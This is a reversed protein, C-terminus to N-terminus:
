PETPSFCFGHKETSLRERETSAPQTRIGVKEELFKVIDNIEDQCYWHGERYERWEVDISLAQLVDRALLGHRMHITEDETGHGLFVPTDLICAHDPLTAVSALKCLDQLARNKEPIQQDSSDESHLNENGVPYKSLIIFARLRHVFPLWGSMGIIAGFRPIPNIERAPPQYTLFFFRNNSTVHM